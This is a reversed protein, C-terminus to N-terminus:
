SRPIDSFRMECETEVDVRSIISCLTSIVRGNSSLLALFIDKSRDPGTAYVIHELPSQTINQDPRPRGSELRPVIDQTMSRLDEMENRFTESFREVKEKMDRQLQVSNRLEEHMSSLAKKFNAEIRRVVFLMEGADYPTQCGGAPPYNTDSDIAHCVKVAKSDETTYRVCASFLGLPSDALCLVFWFSLALSTGATGTHSLQRRQQGSPRQLM